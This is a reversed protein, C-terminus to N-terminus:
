LWLTLKNSSSTLHVETLRGKCHYSFCCSLLLALRCHLLGYCWFVVAASSSIVVTFCRLCVDSANSFDQPDDAVSHVSLMLALQLGKTFGTLELM